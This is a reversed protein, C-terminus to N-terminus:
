LADAELRSKSSSPNKFPNVSFMNTIPKSYMALIVMGALVGVLNDLAVSDGSIVLPAISGVESLMAAVFCTIFIYRAPSWLFALGVLSILLTIHIVIGYELLMLQSPSIPQTRWWQIYLVAMDPLEPVVFYVRYLAVIVAAGLIAM